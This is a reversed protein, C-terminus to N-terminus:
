RAAAVPTGLPAELAASTSPVAGDASRVSVRVKKPEVRVLRLNLWPPFTADVPVLVEGIPSRVNKLDVTAELFPEVRMLDIRRGSLTITIVGDEVSHSVSLRADKNVIKLPRRFTQAVGSSSVLSVKYWIAVAILFSVVKLGLNHTLWRSM